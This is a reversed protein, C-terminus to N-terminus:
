VIVAVFIAVIAVCGVATGALQRAPHPGSTWSGARLLPV